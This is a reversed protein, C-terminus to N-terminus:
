SGSRRGGQKGQARLRWQKYAGTEADNMFAYLDGTKGSRYLCLGYPDRFGTPIPNLAVDVLRRTAPDVKYLALTRATRNSAAVIAVSSTGLKFGHRLDVNNMRGDPLVQLTKGSLDYVYLGRKKQAGIILSRSPDTPHVWIAPDDAADGYDDVPETEVSPKVVRLVDSPAANQAAPQGPEIKLQPAVASWSM